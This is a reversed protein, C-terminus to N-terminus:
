APLWASLMCGELSAEDHQAGAAAWSMHALLTGVLMLLLRLLLQQCHQHAALCSAQHPQQCNPLLHQDAMHLGNIVGVIPWAHLYPVGGSPLM